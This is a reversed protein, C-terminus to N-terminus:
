NIQVFNGNKVQLLFLVKEAEGQFNFSTAGTVGPYNRVMALALRLDDRTQIDEQDLLSLIIGAADFAQAELISPEEGYTEFYLNVFERVFPYSSYRFFGDAIVAGEVFSGATRILDPSNWGNIGLLQIEELGYYALQPAILGVREAFDPIFLADFTAPPFKPELPLPEDVAEEEAPAEKEEEPADPDEGRLLLIQRRFDTAGEPYSQRDVVLGGLKRVEEAFLDAMEDGLRNKPALVGFSTIGLEEVAYRALAKVQMRNTLSDRFVYDGFEPLGEKHSLTLLPIRETQAQQAASASAAGSLPGIVAMVREENALETVAQETREPDTGTDRYVFRVPEHQAVHVKAALEIGRRVLKGFTAYRGSLPLVVGVADRQLWRRGTLRDLLFTAEQRYPFPTPDQLVATVLDRARETKEASMSRWALQVKADLGLSAGQFMFAAEELESYSLERKFLRHAQELLFAEEGGHELARHIFLLAQLHQGLQVNAEALTEFLLVQDAAFLPADQLSLLRAEGERVRGTKVLAMGEIFRAEVGREKAPIRDLYPLVESYSGQDLFIRALYLYAKPMLPSDSHQIIFGRFLSLAADPEGARYLDVGQQFVAEPGSGAPPRESDTQAEAAGATALVLAALLVVVGRAMNRRM